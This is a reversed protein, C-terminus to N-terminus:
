LPTGSYKSLRTGLDNGGGTKIVQLICFHLPFAQSFSDHTHRRTSMLPATGSWQLECVKRHDAELRGFLLSYQRQRKFTVTELEQVLYQWFRSIRWWAGGGERRGTHKSQIWSYFDKPWCQSPWKERQCNVNLFLSIFSYKLENKLAEM